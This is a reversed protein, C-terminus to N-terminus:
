KEVKALDHAPPTDEREWDMSAEEATVIEGGAVDVESLVVKVGYFLVVSAMSLM